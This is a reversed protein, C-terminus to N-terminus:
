AAAFGDAKFSNNSGRQVHFEKAVIFNKGAIFSQM